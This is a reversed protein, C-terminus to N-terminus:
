QKKQKKTTKEKVADGTDNPAIPKKRKKTTSTTTTTTAAAAAAASGASSVAPSYPLLYDRSRVVDKKHHINYSRAHFILTNTGTHIDKAVIDQKHGGCNISHKMFTTAKFYRSRAISPYFRRRPTIQQKHPPKTANNNCHEVNNM